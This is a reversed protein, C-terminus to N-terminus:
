DLILMLLIPELVKFITPAIQLKNNVFSIIKKKYSGTLKTKLSM